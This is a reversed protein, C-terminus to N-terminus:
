IQPSPSSAHDAGWIALVGDRQDLLGLRGARTAGLGACFEPDVLAGITTPSGPGACRLIAARRRRPRCRAVLQPFRFTPGHQVGAVALGELAQRGALDHGAECVLAAEDSRFGAEVADQSGFTLLVMAAPGLRRRTALRWGAVAGATGALDPAPVDGPHGAWDPAPEEVEVQDEIDVAALDDAPLDVLVFSGLQGGIEHALRDPGLAAEGARKDQVGVVAARHLARGHLGGELPKADDGGVAPWPDAVVVREGFGQEAGALVPRVPRCRPEGAPLVRLAPNGTEHSPVILFMAVARDAEDRGVGPVCALVACEELAPGM